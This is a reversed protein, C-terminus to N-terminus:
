INFAQEIKVRQASEVNEIDLSYEEEGDEDWKTIEVTHLNVGKFDVMMPTFEGEEEIDFEVDLTVEITFDSEKQYDITLIEGQVRTSGEYATNAWSSISETIDTLEQQTFKM